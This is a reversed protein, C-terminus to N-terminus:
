LDNVNRKKRRKIPKSIQIINELESYLKIREDNDAELYSHWWNYLKPDVQNVEHRSTYLHWAQRFRPNILIKDIKKINPYEFEFQLIYLDSINNFINKTIGTNYAFERQMAISDYFNHKISSGSVLLKQYTLYVGSWMLGSLIFVLSVDPNEKLRLDTKTLINLALEDPESVFFIRDLLPFINKPFNIKILERICAVSYGSLLIKLMEEYMRGRSENLLLHKLEEIPKQSDKDITLGLKVSLRIARLIRVPDEIYRTRAKGIVKLTKSEIDKLGNQYDIIKEAFPDYYLANITFDRRIADEKQTGYNNDIMIRGHENLSHKHVKNSRYTSVEIIHREVIPRNNVMKNPNINDFIIHVIKFRRGIIISNRRFVKRVLEPTASTVIDFDKPQKGLLLDRIGGGVICADFGNEQLKEIVYLADASIQSNDINYKKAAVTKKTM